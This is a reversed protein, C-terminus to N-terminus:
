KPSIQLIYPTVDSSFASFDKWEFARSLAVNINGAYLPVYPVDEGVIKLLESYYGFRKAADTTADAKHILADVKPNVYDAFNNQGVAAASSDLALRPMGGPDPTRNNFFTYAFPVKSHPQSFTNEYKAESLVTVKINIGLKKLQGAIAQATEV